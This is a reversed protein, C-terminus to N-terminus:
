LQLSLNYDAGSLLNPMDVGGVPKYSGVVQDRGEKLIIRLSQEKQIGKLNIRM